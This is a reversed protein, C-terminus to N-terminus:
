RLSIQIPIESKTPLFHSYSRIMQSNNESNTHKENNNFYNGINETNDTFLSILFNM